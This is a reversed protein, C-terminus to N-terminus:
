RRHGSWRCSRRRAIGGLEDLVVQAAIDIHGDDVEVVLEGVLGLGAVATEFVTQLFGAHLVVHYGVLAGLRCSSARALVVSM